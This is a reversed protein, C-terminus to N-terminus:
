DKKMKKIHRALSGLPIDYYEAMARQTYGEAQLTKICKIDEFLPVTFTKPPRGMNDGSRLM